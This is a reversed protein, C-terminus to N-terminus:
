IKMMIVSLASNLQFACNSLVVHKLYYRPPVQEQPSTKLNIVMELVRLNNKGQSWLPNGNIGYVSRGSYLHLM